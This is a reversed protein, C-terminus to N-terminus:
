AFGLVSRGPPLTASVDPFAEDKAMYLINHFGLIPSWETRVIRLGLSRALAVLSAWDYYVAATTEHEDILLTNQEPGMMPFCKKNFLFWSARILGRPALMARMQRLYFETQDAHLHTFVSNAEVLSFDGGLHEIPLVRNRTNRPAYTPSWVDHHHFRFGDCTLNSRCWEIMERHIDIGVYSEPRVDQLLLRRAERGCGCGFDLVRRYAEGAALPPIDLPGWIPEGTPNDYYSDGTEPSVLGRMELPPLPLTPRNARARGTVHVSAGGGSASAGASFSPPRLLLTTGCVGADAAPKQREAADQPCTITRNSVVHFGAATVDRLFREATYRNLARYQGWLHGLLFDRSEPHATAFAELRQLVWADDRQLHFFPEDIFESLNSGHYCSFWPYVVILVQGGPRAVRGIEALVAPVNAVQEFAGWSLVLDFSRDDFPFRSGDYQRYALRIGHDDPPTFGGALLRGRVGDLDFTEAAHLDLGTVRAAGKAILGFDALMDGCGVDLISLGALSGCLTEVKDPVEVFHSAVWESESGIFAM